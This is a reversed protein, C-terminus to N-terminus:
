GHAANQGPALRLDHEDVRGAQELGLAAEVPRHDGGGPDGGGVGVREHEHDVGPLLDALRAEAFLGLRDEGREAVEALRPEGHM